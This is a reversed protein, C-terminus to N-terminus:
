SAINVLLTFGRENMRAALHARELRKTLHMLRFEDMLASEEDIERKEIERIETCIADIQARTM